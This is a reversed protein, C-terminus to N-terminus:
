NQCFCQCGWVGGGVCVLPESFSRGQDSNKTELISINVMITKILVVRVELSACINFPGFNVGRKNTSCSSRTRKKTSSQCASGQMVNVATKDNANALPGSARLNASGSSLTACTCGFLGRWGGLSINLIHNVNPRRRTCSNDGLDLHRIHHIQKFSSNEKMHKAPEKAIATKAGTCAM